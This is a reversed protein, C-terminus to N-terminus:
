VLRRAKSSEAAAMAFRCADVLGAAANDFSYERVLDLSRRSYKELLEPQTLLLAARDAWLDADLDCVFGNEGNVVLEGAVGAYPSVIVPLGAACAENAVVGWVDDHTPFLFIRASRYLSPLEKQKAFGHFDSEVLDTQQAAAARLREEEDGSGVFLMNVKRGLRRATERGVRLAFLPGKEAVIRSCFILDYKKETPEGAQMFADNDTCLYSRFCREPAVGYSEYLTRGGLSASLYASSRSYVISRILKHVKSLKQESVFTGDTLPIRPIGKIWAYCFAYLQTPNLGDIVVLDPAFRRLAPIVDPNNHIYRGNVTSIRDRLFVHDFEFPPLDWHRNPERRACFIVQLTIGPTRSVRQFVPLRYPPPENTIIALRTM